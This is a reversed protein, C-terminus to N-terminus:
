PKANPGLLNLLTPTDNHTKLQFEPIGSAIAGQGPPERDQGAPTKV